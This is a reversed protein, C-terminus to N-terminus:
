WLVEGKEENKREVSLCQWSCNEDCGLKWLAPKRELSSEAKRM